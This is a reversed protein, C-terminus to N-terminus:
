RAVLGDIATDVALFNAKTKRLFESYIEGHDTSNGTNPDRRRNDAATFTELTPM